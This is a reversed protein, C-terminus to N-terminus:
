PKIPELNLLEVFHNRSPFSKYVFDKATNFRSRTVSVTKVFVTEFDVYKYVSFTFKAKM